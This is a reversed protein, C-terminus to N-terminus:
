TCPRRSSGSRAFTRSAASRGCARSPTPAPRAGPADGARRRSGPLRPEHAGHLPRAPGRAPSLHGGDGRPEADGPRLLPRPARPHHRRRHHPAGGHGRAPRGPDQPQRPQDRGGRGRGLLAARTFRSPGRRPAWVSVGTLDSPLLDATFQVRERPACRAPSPRPRAHDQGRGSRGRAAPTRRLAPVDGRAGGGRARFQSPPAWSPQSPGASSPPPRQRGHALHGHRGREGTVAITPRRASLPTLFDPATRRARRRDHGLLEATDAGRGAQVAAGRLRSIPSRYIAISATTRTGHSRHVPPSM